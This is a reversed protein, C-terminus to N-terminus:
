VLLSAVSSRGSSQSRSSSAEGMTEEAQVLHMGKRNEDHAEDTGGVMSVHRRGVIDDGHTRSTEVLGECVEIVHPAQFVVSECGKKGDEKKMDENVREGRSQVELLAKGMGADKVIRGTGTSGDLAKGAMKEQVLEQIKASKEPRSSSLENDSSVAMVASDQTRSTDESRRNVHMEEQLSDRQTSAHAQDQDQYQQVSADSHFRHEQDNGSHAVNQETGDAENSSGYELAVHARGVTGYPKQAEHLIEQEQSSPTIERETRHKAAPPRARKGVQQALTRM